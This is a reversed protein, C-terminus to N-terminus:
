KTVLRGTVVASITLLGSNSAPNELQNHQLYCKQFLASWFHNQQLARNEPKEPNPRQALQRVFGIQLVVGLM